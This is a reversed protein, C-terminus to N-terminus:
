PHMNLRNEKVGGVPSSGTVGQNVTLHEVSQAISSYSHSWRLSRMSTPSYRDKRATALWTNDARCLKVETNPIPVPPGEAYFEGVPPLNRSAWQFGFLLSVVIQLVM